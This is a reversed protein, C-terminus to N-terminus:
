KALGEQRLKRAAAERTMRGSEVAQRIAARRAEPDDGGGKGGPRSASARREREAVTAEALAYAEEPTYVTQTEPNLRGVFREAIEDVSKPAKKPRSRTPVDSTAEANKRAADARRDVNEPDYEVDERANAAASATRAARDAETDLYDDSGTVSFRGLASGRGGAYANDFRDRKEDEIARQRAEELPMDQDVYSRIREALLGSGKPGEPADASVASRTQGARALARALPSKFLGAAENLAAQKDETINKDSLYKGVAAIQGIEPRPAPIRGGLVSNLIAGVDGVGMLIKGFTGGPLSLAPSPALQEIQEPAVGMQALLMRDQANAASNDAIMRPAALLGTGARGLALAAGLDFGRGAM